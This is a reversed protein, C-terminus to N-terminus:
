ISVEVPSILEESQGGQLHHLIIDITEQCVWGRAVAIEGFKMGSPLQQHQMALISSIQWDKLLGAQKLYQGIPLKSCYGIQPLREVFFDITQQPLWGQDAIIKGLRQPFEQAQQISLATALEDASLLGAKKLIYGMPPTVASPVRHLSSQSSDQVERGSLRKWMLEILSLPVSIPWIMSVAILIGWSTRDTMPTTPDNRFLRFWASFAIAAGLLYVLVLKMHAVITM